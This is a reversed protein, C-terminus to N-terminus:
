LFCFQPTNVHCYRVSPRNRETHHMDRNSQVGRGLIVVDMEVLQALLVAAPYLVFLDAGAAALLDTRSTNDFPKFIFFSLIHGQRVIIKLFGLGFLILGNMNEMKGIQLIDPGDVIVLGVM